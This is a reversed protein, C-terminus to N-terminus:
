RSSKEVYYLVQSGVGGLIGLEWDKIGLTIIWEQFELSSSCSHPLPSSEGRRELPMVLFIYSDGTSVDYLDSSINVALSLQLFSLFCTKVLAAM